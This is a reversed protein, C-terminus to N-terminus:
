LDCVVMAPDRMESPLVALFVTRVAVDLRRVPQSAIYNALNGALDQRHERAVAWRIIPMEDAGSSM